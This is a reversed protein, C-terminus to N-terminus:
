LRADSKTRTNRLNKKSYGSTAYQISTQIYPYYIILSVPFYQYEMERLVAQVGRGGGRGRQQLKIAPLHKPKVVTELQSIYDPYRTVFEIADV